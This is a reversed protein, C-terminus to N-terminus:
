GNCSEMHKKDKKGLDGRPIYFIDCKAWKMDLMESISTKSSHQQQSKKDRINNLNTFDEYFM